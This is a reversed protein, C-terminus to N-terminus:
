ESMKRRAFVAALAAASAGAIVLLVASSDGTEPAHPGPAPNGNPNGDGGDPDTPDQGDGPIVGGDDPDEPELGPQSPGQGGGNDPDTPDLTPQNPNPTSGGGYTPDNATAALATAAFAMSLAFACAVIAAVLNKKM